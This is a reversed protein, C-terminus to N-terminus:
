HKGFKWDFEVWFQRGYPNYNFENYYPSTLGPTANASADSPPMSNMINHVIASVKMDPTINYAVSGSYLMWPAVSGAGPTGYGYIQANYNPSKGYRTGYLTTSWKGITWTVHANAITKFETSYPPQNPQRLLDVVPDSPSAQQTHKLTVNYQAGMELNGFRGVDWNYDLSAVIGSVRENAINIPFVTVQQLADSLNPNSNPPSRLVQSLAAVCAASNIDLQGLRCAAETKLLADISQLQVENSIRIDYYDAKLDLNSTPSWVVGFGASKSTISKLNLNGTHLAFPDQDSFYKCQDLPVNPQQIACRYYDTLGPQYFGSQGGFVYAMDPARFGTSYTGRILLTDIPRFELGVKYTSDGDVGGGHNSYQDYRASIDATLMKFIPIRLEGSYAWNNRYGGGSTGTLGYFEGATVRPDGPNSWMQEGSQFIGAFGVPGAPLDFLDDNTLQINFNQTWTSNSSRIDGNFTAYQAPTLPKYFNSFNPDYIPYGYYTGLQPGYIQKEFFSNVASKLPWRQSEDLKQSSRAFFVDYNWDSAGISGKVGVWANYTRELDRTGYLQWNGIEEPAFIHQFIEFEGTTGNYFYSGPSPSGEWFYPGGTFSTSSVNYLVNGYIQTNDNVSYTANLYGTGSKQKNLITAYGDVAKSGCYYGHGPRYQYGVTGGYLSSVPGCAAAGPDNYLGTNGNLDLFVRSAIFQTGTLSRQYGFIPQQNSLQVGYIMSLKDTNYGGLFELRQNSGGGGTYGGGRLDLEYGEMKQKLIVNVVGAIASSGYISSQNGPLIDIHDVMGVPIDSLDVFNSSGNYLLPYDAMPHGNILFLTFGPDLGLLSITQAGPTFGGTFQNDQVSGTSLPQARLAEYVTGFGQAQLKQASLTIVPNATEIQSQPILSGTVTITGLTKEKKKQQDSTSATSQSAPQTQTSQDQTTTSNTTQAHAAGAAFLSACIATTLLNRNM